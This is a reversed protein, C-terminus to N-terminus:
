IQTVINCRHASQKDFHISECKLYHEVDGYLNQLNETEDRVISAYNQIDTTLGEIIEQLDYYKCNSHIDFSIPHIMFKSVDETTRVKGALYFLIAASSVESLNHTNIQYPCKKLFNYLAIAPAVAGGTSNINITLTDVDSLSEVSTIFKRISESNVSGIFSTTYNM